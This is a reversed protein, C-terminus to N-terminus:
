ECGFVNLYVYAHDRCYLKGPAEIPQNCGEQMCEHVFQKRLPDHGTPNSEVILKQKEVVAADAGIAKELSLYADAEDESDREAFRYRIFLSRIRDLRSVAEDRERRLVDALEGACKADLKWNRVAGDRAKTMADLKSRLENILEDRQELAQAVQNPDLM